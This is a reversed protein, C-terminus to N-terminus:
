RQGCKRRPKRKAACTGNVKKTGHDWGPGDMWGDMWGSCAVELWVLGPVERSHPALWQRGKMVSVLVYCPRTDKGDQEWKVCQSSFALLRCPTQLWFLRLWRVSMSIPWAETYELYFMSHSTPSSAPLESIQSLSQKININESHKTFTSVATHTASNAVRM